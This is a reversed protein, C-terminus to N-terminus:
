EYLDAGIEDNRLLTSRYHSDTLVECHGRVIGHHALAEFLVDLDIDADLIIRYRRREVHWLVRGRPLYFYEGNYYPYHSWDFQDEVLPWVEVHGPIFDIWNGNREVQDSGVRAWSSILRRSTPCYWFIGVSSNSEM